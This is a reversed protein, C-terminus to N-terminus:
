MAQEALMLDEPDMAVVNRAWAHTRARIAGHEVAKFLYARGPPAKLLDRKRWLYLFVDSVVDEAEPRSLNGVYRALRLAKAYCDTYLAVLDDATTVAYVITLPPRRRRQLYRCRPGHRGGLV